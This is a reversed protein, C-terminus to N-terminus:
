PQQWLIKEAMVMGTGQWWFGRKVIKFPIFSKSVWQEGEKTYRVIRVPTIIAEGIHVSEKVVYLEDKGDGDIDHVLIEKAHTKEMAVVTERVYSKGDYKYM